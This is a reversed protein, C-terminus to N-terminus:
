AEAEINGSEVRYFAAKNAGQMVDIEEGIMNKDTCTIFIQAGKMASVLSMRRTKDLESFVDDLILIPTSSVFMKIIELESLKLALAAT